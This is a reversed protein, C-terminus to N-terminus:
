ACRTLRLARSSQDRRRRSLRARATRRALTAARQDGPSRRPRRALEEEHGNALPSEDDGASGRLPRLSARDQLVHRLEGGLVAPYRQLLTANNERLAEDLVDGAIRGTEYAYEIGAGVFPNASGAADGIVLWTPGATPGVSGGMPVRGSAPAGLPADPDIQWREAIDTAFHELLHTTNIARFEKATSVVGVGVNVTGDGLPFVWGYGTISVGNRDTLDITLEIAPTDHLPSTFYNRIATRM